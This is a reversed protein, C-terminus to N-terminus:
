GSGNKLAETTLKAELLALEPVPPSAKEIRGRGIAALAGALVLLAAAVILLAAWVPLFTALGAAAGALLFAFAFFAFLACAVFLGVGVGLSAMKQKLELVALEIELQVVRRAHERVRDAARILTDGGISGNRWFSAQPSPL